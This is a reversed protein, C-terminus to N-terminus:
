TPNVASPVNQAMMYIKKLARAPGQLSDRSIRSDLTKGMDKWECWVVGAM